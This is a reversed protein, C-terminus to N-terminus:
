STTSIDEAGENRSKGVQKRLGVVQLMETWFGVPEEIISREYLDIVPAEWVLDVEHAPIIRTKKVVKWFIYLVPALLVMTYYIFFNDVSWPKFSSYGYTTVIFVMWSLGIWGCYPQFWGTYPLTKRDLGQVKCARYFSLYTICIVIYDIVGGATILNVQM